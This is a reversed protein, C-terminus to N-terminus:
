GRGLHSVRAIREKKLRLYLDDMGNSKYKTTTIRINSKEGNRHDLSRSLDSEQQTKMNNHSHGGQGQLNNFKKWGSKLRGIVVNSSNYAEEAYGIVMSKCLSKRPREEGHICISSEQQSKKNEINQLTYINNKRREQAGIVRFDRSKSGIAENSNCIITCGGISDERRKGRRQEPSHQINAIDPPILSTSVPDTVKTKSLTMFFSKKPSSKKSRQIVGPTKSRVKDRRIKEPSDMTNNDIDVNPCFKSLRLNRNETGKLLPEIKRTSGSRSNLTDKNSLDFQHSRRPIKIVHTSRNRITPSNNNSERGSNIKSDKFTPVRRIENVSQSPLYIWIYRGLPDPFNILNRTGLMKGIDYEDLEHKIDKTDLKRSSFLVNGSDAEEVEFIKTKFLSMKFAVISSPESQNVSIFMREGKCYSSRTDRYMARAHRDYKLCLALIITSLKRIQISEEKSQEKVNKILKRLETHGVKIPRKYISLYVKKLGEWLADVSGDGFVEM